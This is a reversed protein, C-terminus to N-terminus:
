AGERKGGVYYLSTYFSFPRYPLSFIPLFNRVRLVEISGRVEACVCM